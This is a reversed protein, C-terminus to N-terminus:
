RSVIPLWNRKVRQRYQEARLLSVTDTGPAHYAGVAMWWDSTRRYQELLIDAGVGLNTSPDLATWLSEFRQQHWRWSIQMIGADVSQGSKVATVLAHHAKLRTNFRYGIRDVNLSWPWPESVTINSSNIYPYRSETIAVAYLIDAPIGKLIAIDRYASPIGAFCVHHMFIALLCFLGSLQVRM